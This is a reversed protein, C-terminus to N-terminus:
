TRPPRPVDQGDAPAPVPAKPPKPRRIVADIHSLWKRGLKVAADASAGPQRHVLDPGFVELELEPYRVDDFMLRLVVRSAGSFTEDLVRRNEGRQSRGVVKGDIILEAGEIEDFGFVLGNGSRDWLVALDGRTFDLAAAKGHTFDMVEADPLKGLAKALTRRMRRTDELWWGLGKAIVTFLAAALAFWILTRALQDM